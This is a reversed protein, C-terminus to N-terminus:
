LCSQRKYIGFAYFSVSSKVTNKCKQSRRAYFSYTFRQHYQLRTEVIKEPTLLNKSSKVQEIREKLKKIDAEYMRIQFLLKESTSILGMNLDVDNRLQNQAKETRYNESMKLRFVKKSLVRSKSLKKQIEEKEQCAKKFVEELATASQSSTVQKSYM